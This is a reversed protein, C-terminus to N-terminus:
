GHGREKILNDLRAIKMRIWVLVLSSFVVALSSWLMATTFRPDKLGREAVVQPHLQAFQPLLKVSYVVVPVLIAAIIALVASHQSIRAPDGFHRLLVMSLFTCWLLLFSVLRPEWRFPTNWASNGWIMGTVLTATCFLFGIEAGSILAFDFNKSRTALFGVGGLLLIMVAVYSAFASAVHFYFIRQVAGMVRENPVYMFVLWLSFTVLAWSLLIAPLLLQSKFQRSIM